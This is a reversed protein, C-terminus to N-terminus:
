KFIPAICSALFNAVNLDNSSFEKRRISRLLYILAKVKGEYIVPTIIISNWNPIGTIGNKGVASDWDVEFMGNQSVIVKEIFDKNLKCENRLTKNLKSVAHATKGAAVPIIVANDSETIEKIKSLCFDLREQKNMRKRVLSTIEIFALINKTDTLSNGTILGTMRDTKKDTFILNEEWVCVTNRGANKAYYLAQDTKELLERVTAANQPFSAAGISVTIKLESHEFKLLEIKKRINEAIVAAQNLQTNPLFVLFEEGGWRGLIQNRKLTRLAASAVARLVEDGTQHGFTDNVRKFYDLDYMLLSFPKNSKKAITFLERFTSDTYKRTLASTLKDIHAEYQSKYSEILFAFVNEYTKCFDIGLNNCMHIEYDSIFVLYACINNEANNTNKYKIPLVIYAPLNENKLIDDINSETNANKLAYLIKRIDDNGGYQFMSRIENENDAIFVDHATALLNLAIYESLIKINQFFDTSFNLIVNDITKNKFKTKTKAFNVIDALFRRDTKLIDVEHSALADNMQKVTFKKNYSRYDPKLKKNLYDSIVDYIMGYTHVNFFAQRKDEPILNMVATIYKRAEFFKVVGMIENGSDLYFLALQMNVDINFTYLEESDLALATTLYKETKEKEVFALLFLLRSKQIDSLDAPANEAVCKLIPSFDIDHRVTILQRLISLISSFGTYLLNTYKSNTFIKIYYSKLKSIDDSERSALKNIELYLEFLLNRIEFQIGESKYYKMLMKREQEYEGFMSLIKMSTQIYLILYDPIQLIRKDNLMSEIKAKYSFAESYQRRMTLIDFMLTYAFLYRNYLQNQKIKKIAEACLTYATSYEGLVSYLIGTNLMALVQISINNRKESEDIVTKCFSLATSFDNRLYLYMIALNNLACGKAKFNGTKSALRVTKFYFKEAQAYKGSCYFCRGLTLLTKVKASQYKRVNGSRKIVDKALAIGEAYKRSYQFFEAKTEMFSIEVFEDNADKLIEEAAHLTKEIQEAEVNILIEYNVKTIYFLTSLCKNNFEGNLLMEAQLLTNACSFTNDMDIYANALLLLVYMQRDTDNKDILSHIKEFISIVESSTYKKKIIFENKICYGIVEETLNGREAHWIYACVDIDKERKIMDIIKKHMKIKYTYDLKSYLTKQLIKDAFGYEQHSSFKTEAIINNRLLHHFCEGMDSKNLDTIDAMEGFTFSNQFISLTNLLRHEKSNLKKIHNKIAQEITSSIQIPQLPDLITNSLECIATIENKKIDGTDLLESLVEVIFLPNGSTHTHIKKILIEPVYRVELLRRIAIGTDYEPLNSLNIEKINNQGTLVKLIQKAKNNQMIEFKDYSFILIINKRTISEMSLYLFFELIFDTAFHIDDVIFVTMKSTMERLILNSIRNILKYKLMNFEHPTYNGSMLVNFGESIDKKLDDTANLPINILLKQIMYLLFRKDDFNELSSVNYVDCQELLFLFNLESLFNTKGSGFQATIFFVSNATSGNRLNYFNSFIENKEAYRGLTKLTIKKETKHECGLSFTRNLDANIDQIIQYFLYKKNECLSILLKKYIGFLCNVIKEDDKSLGKEMYEDKLLEFESLEFSSMQRRALLSLFIIIFSDISYEFYELSDSKYELLETNESLKSTIIDRLKITFQTDTKIIYVNKLSFNKFQMQYNCIYNLMKCISVTIQLIEEWSADKLFDSLCITSEIKEHTYIYFDGTNKVGDISILRTFDYIKSLFPCGFEKLLSFNNKLFNLFPNEFDSVKVMNLEFQLQGSFQLDEVTFCRASENKKSLEKIIRYRDNIIYM